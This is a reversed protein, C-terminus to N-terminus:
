RCTRQLETLLELAGARTELDPLAGLARRAADPTRTTVLARYVAAASRRHATRPPHAEARQAARAALGTNARATM